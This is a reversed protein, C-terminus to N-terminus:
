ALPIGDGIVGGDPERRGWYVCPGGEADIFMIWTSGDDRIGEVYGAFSEAVQKVPVGDETWLKVDDFDGPQYRAITINQM